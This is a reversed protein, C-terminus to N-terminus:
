EINQMADAEVEEIKRKKVNKKDLWYTRQGDPKELNSYIETVAEECKQQADTLEWKTFLNMLKGRILDKNVTIKPPAKSMLRIEANGNDVAFGKKENTLLWDVLTSQRQKVEDQLTKLSQQTEQKQSILENFEQLNRKLEEM